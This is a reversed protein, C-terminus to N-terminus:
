DGFEGCIEKCYRCANKEEGCWRDDKTSPKNGIGIPSRRSRYWLYLDKALNDQDGNDAIYLDMVDNYMEDSTERSVNNEALALFARGTSILNEYTSVKRQTYDMVADFISKALDNRYDDYSQELALRGNVIDQNIISMLADFARAKQKDTARDMLFADKRSKLVAELGRTIQNLYKRKM